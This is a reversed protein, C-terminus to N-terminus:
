TQGVDKKTKILICYTRIGFRYQLFIGFEEPTRILIGAHEYFAM